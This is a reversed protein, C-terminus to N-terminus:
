QLEPETKLQECLTLIIKNGEDSNFKWNEPCLPQVRFGGNPYYDIHGLNRTTGYRGSDTHFVDVFDASNKDM